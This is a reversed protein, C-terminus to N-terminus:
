FHKHNELWDMPTIYGNTQCYEMYYQMNSHMESLPYMDKRAANILTILETKDTAFSDFDSKKSVDIGIVNYIFREITKM